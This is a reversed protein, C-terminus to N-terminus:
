EAPRSLFLRRFTFPPSNSLKARSALSKEIGASPIFEDLDSRVLEKGRRTEGGDLGGYNTNWSPYLSQVRAVFRNARPFLFFPSFAFLFSSSFAPIARFRPASRFQLCRNRAPKIGSLLHPIGRLRKLRRRRTKGEKHSNFSPFFPPSPSCRSSHRTGPLRGFIETYIFAGRPIFTPISPMRTIGINLALHIVIELKRKTETARLEFLIRWKQEKSDDERERKREKTRWKKWKEKYVTSKLRPLKEYRRREPEGGERRERWRCPLKAGVEPAFLSEPRIWQIWTPPPICSRIRRIIRVPNMYTRRLPLIINEM